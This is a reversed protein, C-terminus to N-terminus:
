RILRVEILRCRAKKGAMEDSSEYELVANPIEDIEFPQFWNREVKFVKNSEVFYGGEPGGGYTQYYIKNIDSLSQVSYVEEWDHIITQVKTRDSM